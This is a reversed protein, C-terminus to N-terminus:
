LVRTEIEFSKGATDEALKKVRKYRSKAQFMSFRTRLTMSIRQFCIERILLTKPQIIKVSVLSPLL